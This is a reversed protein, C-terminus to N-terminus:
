NQPAPEWDLTPLQNNNILESEKLDRSERCRGEWTRLNDIYRLREGTVGEMLEGLHKVRKWRPYNEDLHMGISDNMRQIIVDNSLQTVTHVEIAKFFHPYEANPENTLENTTKITEFQNVTPRETEEVIYWKVDETADKVPEMDNRTYKAAKAEGGKYQKLIKM